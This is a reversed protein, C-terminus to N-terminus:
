RCFRVWPGLDEHKRIGNFDRANALTCFKAVGDYDVVMVAKGARVFPMFGTCSTGYFCPLNDIDRDLEFIAWDFYRAMETSQRIDNELAAGLGLSHAANALFTNYTLQDQATLAFGTRQVYFGDLNDFQAGDFGKAKCSKMRALMLPGLIDLRRIDLWREDPFGAYAAGLVIKPFKGADPRDSEWSGADIYCYAHRGQRHLAGVLAASTVFMDADILRATAGFDGLGGTVPSLVWNWRIDRPPVWCKPCQLPASPATPPALDDAPAPTAAILGILAILALGVARGFMRRPVPREIRTM